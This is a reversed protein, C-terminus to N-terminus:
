GRGAMWLRMVIRDFKDRKEIRLEDSARELQWRATVYQKCVADFDADAHFEVGYGEIHDLVRIYVISPDRRTRDRFFITEALATFAALARLRLVPPWEMEDSLLRIHQRTVAIDFTEGIQIGISTSM